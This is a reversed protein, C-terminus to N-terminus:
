AQRQGVAARDHDELVVADTIQEGRQQRKGLWVMQRQEAEDRAAAAQTFVVGHDVGDALAGLRQEVGRTHAPELQVRARWCAVPRRGDLTGVYEGVGGVAGYEHQDIQHAALYRAGYTAPGM